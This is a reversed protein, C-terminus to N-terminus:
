LAKLFIACLAIFDSRGRIFDTECIFHFGGMQQACRIEDGRSIEDAFSIKGV